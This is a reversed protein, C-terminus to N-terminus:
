RRPEEKIMNLQVYKEVDSRLFRLVRTRRKGKITFHSIEREQAMRYVTARSLRLVSCVEPVTMLLDNM